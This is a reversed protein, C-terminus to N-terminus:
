DSPMAELQQLIASVSTLEGITEATVPVGFQSELAMILDMHGMSDWAPFDGFQTDSTVDAPDIQFLETILSQVADFHSHQDSMAKKYWFLGM